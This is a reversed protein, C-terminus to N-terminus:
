GRATRAGFLLHHQSVIRKAINSARHLDTPITEAICRFRILFAAKDKLHNEDAPKIQEEVAADKIEMTCVDPDFRTLRRLDFETAGPPAHNSLKDQRFAEGHAIPRLM